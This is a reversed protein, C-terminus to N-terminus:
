LKYSIVTFTAQVGYHVTHCLVALRSSLSVCNSYKWKLIEKTENNYFKMSWIVLPPYCVQSLTEVKRSFMVLKMVIPPYCVQLPKGEEAWREEVTEPYPLM